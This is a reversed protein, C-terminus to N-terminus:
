LCCQRFLEDYEEKSIKKNKFDENLQDLKNEFDLDRVKQKIKEVKTFYDEAM